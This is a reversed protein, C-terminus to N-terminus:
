PALEQARLSARRYRRPPKREQEVTREELWELVSRRMYRVPGGLKVRRPGCGMSAWRRLSQAEVGMSRAAQETTLLEDLYELVERGGERAVRQVELALESLAEALSPADPTTHIM